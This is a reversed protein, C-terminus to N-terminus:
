FDITITLTLEMGCGRQPLYRWESVGKVIQQDVSPSGTGKIIKVKSVRGDEGVKLSLAPHPNKFRKDIKSPLPLKNEGGAAVLQCQKITAQSIAPLSSSALLLVLLLNKMIPASV